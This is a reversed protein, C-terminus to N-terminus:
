PNQLHYPLSPMGTKPNTVHPNKIKWVRSKAPDIDRIAAKETVLETEKHFFGIDFPNKPGPPMTQTDIQMGCSTEFVITCCHTQRMLNFHLFYKMSRKFFSSWEGIMTENRPIKMSGLPANEKCKSIYRLSPVFEYMMSYRVSKVESVVLANGGNECDVAPDMRYCFFHQHIQANIGPSMITGHEPVPGEGQSLISTSLIGTLKAEYQITGDTHFYQLFLCRTDSKRLSM